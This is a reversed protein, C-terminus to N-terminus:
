HALRQIFRHDHGWMCRHRVGGARDHTQAISLYEAATASDFNRFTVSSAAVRVDVKHCPRSMAVGTFVLHTKGSLSMLMDVARDKSVPKGLCLGSVAVVTDAALIWADPKLERCADHKALANTCVTKVPDSDDNIENCDPVFIEFEVGIDKLIRHRRASATAAIFAPRM